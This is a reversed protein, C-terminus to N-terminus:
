VALIESRESRPKPTLFRQRDAVRSEAPGMLEAFMKQQQRLEVLVEPSPPSAKVALVPPKDRMSFNLTLILVWVAALGAWAKPHPWLFTSLKYNITSLWSRHTAAFTFERSVEQRRNADAAMAAMIEARWEGPVQKVPQRRLRQEFKELEENM